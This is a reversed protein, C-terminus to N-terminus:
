RLRARVWERQADQLALRVDIPSVSLTRAAADCANKYGDGAEIAAFVAPMEDGIRGRTHPDVPGSTPYAGPMGITTAYRFVNIALLFPNMVLSVVGFWGAVASLVMGELFYFDTCRRCHMGGVESTWRSFLLGANKYYERYKTPVRRKCCSCSFGQGTWALSTGPLSAGPLADDGLSTEASSSACHPCRIRLRDLDIGDRAVYSRHCGATSCRVKAELASELDSLKAQVWIQFFEKETM